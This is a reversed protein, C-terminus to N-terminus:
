MEYSEPQKPLLEEKKYFVKLIIYGFIYILSFIGSIISVFGSLVSFVLVATIGIASSLYKNLGPLALRALSAATFSKAIIAILLYAFVAVLGTSATYRFLLMIIIAVPMLFAVAAGLGITKGINKTFLEGAEDLSKGMLFCLLLVLLVSSPISYRLDTFNRHIISPTKTYTVKAALNQNVTYEKKAMNNYLYYPTNIGKVSAKDISCTEAFYVTDANIVAGNTVTGYIYATGGWIELYECTGYFYVDQGIAYVAAFETDKGIEITYAAVTANKAKTNNIVLSASATRINGGVDAQIAIKNGFALLDGGVTGKIMDGDVDNSSYFFIYDGEIDISKRNKETEIANGAGDYKIAAASTCLLISVLIVVTLVGFLKKINIM